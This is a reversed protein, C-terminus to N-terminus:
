LSGKPYRAGAHAPSSSSSASRPAPSSPMSSSSSRTSSVLALGLNRDTGGVPAPGSPAERTRVSQTTSM